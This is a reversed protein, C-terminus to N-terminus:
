FQFFDIQNYRDVYYIYINFQTELSLVGDTPNKTNQKRINIYIVLNSNIQDLKKNTLNNQKLNNWRCNFCNLQNNFITHYAPTTSQLLHHPVKFLTDHYKSSPPTTSQLPRHPVKVLTTHYKSSPTTISKLPRHPIKLLTDHYKSSPRTTSQLPHRPVKFIATHYKSSATTISLLPHHPVKYHTDHYKSSPSTTSQLPHHTVKFLTHNYELCQQRIKNILNYCLHMSKLTEM